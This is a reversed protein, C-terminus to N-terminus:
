GHSMTATHKWEGVANRNKNTEMLQKIEVWRPLVAGEGKSIRAKIKNSKCCFDWPPSRVKREVSTELCCTLETSNSSESVLAATLCKHKQCFPVPQFLARSHVLIRGEHPRTPKPIIPGYAKIGDYVVPFKFCVTGSVVWTDFKMSEFFLFLSKPIVAM